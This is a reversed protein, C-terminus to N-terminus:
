DLQKIEDLKQIKDYNVVNAATIYKFISSLNNWNELVRNKYQM